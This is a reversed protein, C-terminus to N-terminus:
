LSGGYGQQQYPYLPQAGYSGQPAQGYNYYAASPQAYGMTQAFFFSALLTYWVMVWRARRQLFSGPMLTVLGARGETDFFLRVVEVSGVNRM